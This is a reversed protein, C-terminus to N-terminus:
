MYWSKFTFGVFTIDVVIICSVIAWFYIRDLAEAVEHAPIPHNEEEENLIKTKRRKMVIRLLCNPLYQVAPKGAYNVIYISWLVGVTNICNLVLFQYSLYPIKLSNEPIRETAATTTVVLSLYLTIAFTLREGSSPCVFCTAMNLCSMLTFPIFVNVLEFTARRKIAFSSQFMPMTVNEINSDKLLLININTGKIELEGNEKLDSVIIDTSPSNLMIETDDHNSIIFKFYCTHMDYPYFSTNVNCKTKYSGAPITRVSGQYTAWAPAFGSGYVSSEENAPGNTLYFNPKWHKGRPLMIRKKGAYLDPDWKLMEDIWEIEFYGNVLLEGTTIDFYEISSIFQTLNVKIVDTQNLLPRLMTNYRKEDFLHGLLSDMEKYTQGFTAGVANGIIIIFIISGM